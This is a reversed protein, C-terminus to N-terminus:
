VPESSDLPAPEPHKCDKEIIKMALIKQSENFKTVECGLSYIIDAKLVSGAKPTFKYIRSHVVMIEFNYNKKEYPISIQLCQGVAPSFNSLLNFGGISINKIIFPQFNRFQGKVEREIEFKGAIYSATDFRLSHRKEDM